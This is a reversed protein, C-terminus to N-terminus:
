RKMQAKRQSQRMKQTRMSQMKKVTQLRNNMCWMYHKNASFSWMNGKYPKKQRINKQQQEKSIKAYSRCFRNRKQYQNTMNKQLIRFFSKDKASIRRDALLSQLSSYTSTGGGSLKFSISIGFGIGRKTGYDGAAFRYKHNKIFKFGKPLKPWAEATNSQIVLGLLIFLLICKKM